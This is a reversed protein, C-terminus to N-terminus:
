RLTSLSIRAANTLVLRGEEAEIYGMAVLRLVTAVSRAGNQAAIIQGNAVLRGYRDVVGGQPNLERLIALMPETLESSTNM